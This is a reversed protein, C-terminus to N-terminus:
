KACDSAPHAYDSMNATFKFPNHRKASVRVKRVLSRSVAIGFFNYIREDGLNSIGRSTIEAL